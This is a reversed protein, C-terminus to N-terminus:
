SSSWREIWKHTRQLLNEFQHENSTKHVLRSPQNYASIFSKFTQRIRQYLNKKNYSKIPKLQIGAEKVFDTFNSDDVRQEFLKRELVFEETISGLLTDSLLPNRITIVRAEVTLVEHQIATKSDSKVFSINSKLCTSKDENAAPLIFCALLIIM